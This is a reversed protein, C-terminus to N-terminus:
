RSQKANSFVEKLDEENQTSVNKCSIYVAGEGFMKNAFDRREEPNMDYALAHGYCSRYKAVPCKSYWDFGIVRFFGPHTLPFSMRKLDLPKDSSKIKVCLMDADFNNSYSQVAYLNFRYGKKELVIIAGLVKQGNEIIQEPSVGCSVTMDYYVNVVKCKIPKMTMNIMSNPIGKMALPVVPSFGYVNNEFQIRKETGKANVKLAGNLAEVSPQYGNNLLDLAENYTNVGEWDKSLSKTSVDDFSDDTIKRVKCDRVVEQASTYSEIKIKVTKGNNLKIKNTKITSM